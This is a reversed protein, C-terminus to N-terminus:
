QIAIQLPNAPIGDITVVINTTGVGALTAPLPGANIQDLGAFQSQVGVFTIPISIGDVTLFVPNASRRRFGTGWLSLYVSGPQLSITAPTYAGPSGQFVNEVTQNGQADVRTIQAAPVGTGNSNATFFGPSVNSILLAGQATGTPSTITITAAGLAASAPVLFNVQSPSVYFLSALATNKASDTISVQTSGLTTPLPLSATATTGALNAGFSSAISDPAVIPGYDAGSLTNIASQAPVSIISGAGLLLAGIYRLAQSL